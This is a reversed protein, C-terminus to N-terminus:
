RGHKGEETEIVPFTIKVNRLEAIHVNETNRVLEWPALDRM